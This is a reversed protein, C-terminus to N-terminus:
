KKTDGTAKITVESRYEDISNLILNCQGIDCWRNDCDHSCGLHNGEPLSQKRKRIAEEIVGLMWYSIEFKM